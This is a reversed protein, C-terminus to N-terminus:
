EEVIVHANTGSFGFASLGGRRKGDHAQWDSLETVVKVPLKQWPIFPNPKNFHLSAPLQRNQLSLVLKFLGALGACAELHGVNSKVAGLLLPNESPRGKGLAAGLAQVEIPDGLSTGTGHTEVYDVDRPQLGADRLATNIVAQQSSGNPATLGSSAGDQNIATGRIVAMIPDGDKQADSLRKLAIMACGEGQVFGDASADFTKCRGDAALMSSKSFTITNNPSLVLNVGGVLALNSERARLSRCALHTAVLSSSCATDVTLCAGQLGLIYAIRGAATSYANGSAYYTDLFVPDNTALQLEAYDTKCMALFVGTLSEKLADPAQGANELAEWATELLLRQQPDLSMAERPSVGFFQPDFHDVNKLFAGRRTFIKGPANPDPDYLADVDWRESPIDGVADRGDRLLQWFKEPTDCGGPFRCAMGIIAIPEHVAADQASKLKRELEEIKLFARKLPSLEQQTNTTRTM